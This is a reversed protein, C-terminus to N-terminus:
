RDKNNSKGHGGVISRKLAEILSPRKPEPEETDLKKHIFHECNPCVMRGEPIIEWCIVCHNEM